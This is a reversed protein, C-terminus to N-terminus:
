SKKNRNEQKEDNKISRYLQYFALFISLFCFLLLWVPFGMQSKTQIKFGIWTGIGIVACM